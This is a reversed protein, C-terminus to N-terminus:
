VLFGAARLRAVSWTTSRATQQLICGRLRADDLTRRHLTSRSVSLRRALQPSTLVDAPEVPTPGNNVPVNKLAAAVAEDVMARLVATQDSTGDRFAVLQASTFKVALEAGLDRRLQASVQERVLARQEPTISASLQNADLVPGIAQELIAKIAAAVTM